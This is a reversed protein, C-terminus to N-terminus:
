RLPFRCVPTSLEVDLLKHLGGVARKYEEADEQTKHVLAELWDEDPQKDGQM